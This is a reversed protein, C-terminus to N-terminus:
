RGLKNAPGYLFVFVFVVSSVSVCLSLKSKGFKGSMCTKQVCVGFLFAGLGRGENILCYHVPNKNDKVISKSWFRSLLFMEISM